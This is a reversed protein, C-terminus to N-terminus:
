HKNQTVTDQPKNTFTQKRQAQKMLALIIIGCLYPETKASYTVKENQKKNTYSIDRSGSLLNAGFKGALRTQDRAPVLKFTL